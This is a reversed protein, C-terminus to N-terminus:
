NSLEGYFGRRFDWLSAALINAMEDIEIQFTLDPGILLGRKLILRFYPLASVRRFGFWM